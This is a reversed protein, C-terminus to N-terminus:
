SMTVFCPPQTRTELSGPFPARKETKKGHAAYGVGGALSEGFSAWTGNAGQPCRSTEAGALRDRPRAGGLLIEGLLKPVVRPM